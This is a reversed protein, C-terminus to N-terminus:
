EMTMKEEVTGVDLYCYFGTLIENTGSEHLLNCQVYHATNYLTVLSAKNCTTFKLLRM